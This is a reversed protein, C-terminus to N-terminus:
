MVIYQNQAAKGGSATAAAVAAARGVTNVNARVSGRCIVLREHNGTLHTNVVYASLTIPTPPTTASSALADSSLCDGLNTSTQELPIPEQRFHELMEVISDFPLHQVRCHGDPSLTMRLHKPKGHCSFTLVFEGQKTESQRVLFVGDTTSLAPQITSLDTSRESESNIRTVESSSSQQQTTGREFESLQGLVYSAARVRSLTGHYWPYVSLQQGIVDEFGTVMSSVHTMNNPNPVSFAGTRFTDVRSPNTGPSKIQEPFTSNTLSCFRNTKDPRGVPHLPAPHSTPSAHRFGSTFITPRSPTPCVVVNANPKVSGHSITNNTTTTCGDSQSPNINNAPVPRDTKSSAACSASWVDPVSSVHSCIRAFTSVPTSVTSNDTSLPKFNTSNFVVSADHVKHNDSTNCLENAKNSSLPLSSLVDSASKSSSDLIADCNTCREPRLPTIVHSPSIPNRRLPPLGSRIATIWEKADEETSSQFIKQDGFETKVLLVNNRPDTLEDPYVLRVDLILSCCLGYRSQEADPPTFIELIFGASTSYLCLRCQIWQTGKNEVAVESIFKECEIRPRHSEFHPGLWQMVYGERILEANISVPTGSARPYVNGSKGGSVDLGIPPRRRWSITFSRRLWLSSLRWSPKIESVSPNLSSDTTIKTQQEVLWPQKHHSESQHVPSRRNVDKNPASRSHRTRSFINKSTKDSPIDCSKGRPSTNRTGSVAAAKSRAAAVVASANAYALHSFHDSLETFSSNVSLNEDKFSLHEFPSKSDISKEAFLNGVPKHDHVFYCPSLSTEFKRRM